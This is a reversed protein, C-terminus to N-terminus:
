AWGLWAWDLWDVCFGWFWVVIRLLVTSYLVSISFVFATSKKRAKTMMTRSGEGRRVLSSRPIINQEIRELFVYGSNYVIGDGVCQVQFIM